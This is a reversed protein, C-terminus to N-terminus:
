TPLSALFAGLTQLLKEFKFDTVRHLRLESCHGVALVSLGDVREDSVLFVEIYAGEM